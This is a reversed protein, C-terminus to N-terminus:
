MKWIAVERELVNEILADKESYNNVKLKELLSLGMEPPPSFKRGSTPDGLLATAGTGSQVKLWKLFRESTGKEFCVDGATVIDWQSAGGAALVDIVEVVMRDQLNNAKANMAAAAGAVPDIDSAMTLKAGAVAAALAVVGCGSGCDLVTKGAVLEPHDLIYRALAQGGPWAVAWYPPPLQADDESLVEESAEWVEMIRPTLYMEFEPLMPITTLEAHSQVLEYMAPTILDKTSCRTEAQHARTMLIRSPGPRSSRLIRTGLYGGYGGHARPLTNHM